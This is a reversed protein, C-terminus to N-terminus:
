RKKLDITAENVNIDAVVEWNGNFVADPVIKGEMLYTSYHSYDERRAITRTGYVRHQVILFNTKM